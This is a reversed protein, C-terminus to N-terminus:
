WSCEYCTPEFLLWHDSLAFVTPSGFADMQHQARRGRTTAFTIAIATRARWDDCQAINRGHATPQPDADHEHRPYVQAAAWAFLAEIPQVAQRLTLYDQARLLKLLSQDPDIPSPDTADPPLGNTLLEHLANPEIDLKVLFSPQLM